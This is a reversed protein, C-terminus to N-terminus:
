AAPLEPQPAASERSGRRTGTLRDYLEILNGKTVDWALMREIRERGIEGMRQRRAPDDLLEAILRAFEHEDNASAYVAADAASVRAEALDFSVVPRAMAMYELLKNMTSIDNLANKPDPSLCVDATSLYRRVDVDPLRGTFEVCDELQLENMLRRCSEFADGSGIFVAHFDSRGLDRRLHALARVAYDVGDAFGMVGLYCLLFPKGKKVEPDPEAPRVVSLDPGSRVVTVRDPAVKGRELAVRRYSENTAIVADALAFTVRELLLVIRRFLPRRGGFRAELLEPVLDHHDFVFRSGRLKLPLAVLFLLDPPNCAHVVDFPRRWGLRLGIRLMHWLAIGYERLYGGIGEADQQGPFRYIRVGEIEEYPQLDRREGRPCIVTVEYGAETLARSENWVRRDFPVSLNEDLILVRRGM